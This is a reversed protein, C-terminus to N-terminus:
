IRVVYELTLKDAKVEVGSKYDYNEYDLRIYGNNNEKMHFTIGASIRRPSEEKSDPYKNYLDYRLAPTIKTFIPM